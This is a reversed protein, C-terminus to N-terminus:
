HCVSRCRHRVHQKHIMMKVTSQSVEEFIWIFTSSGGKKREKLWLIASSKCQNAKVIPVPDGCVLINNDEERAKVIKDLLLSRHIPDIVDLIHHQTLQRQFLRSAAPNALSIM